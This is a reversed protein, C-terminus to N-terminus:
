VGQNHPEVPRADFDFLVVSVHLIPSLTLNMKMIDCDWFLVDQRAPFLFEFVLELSEVPLPRSASRKGIGESHVCEVFRKVVRLLGFLEVLRNAVELADLPLKCVHQRLDFGSSQKDVLRCCHGVITTSNRVSKLSRERFQMRGLPGFMDHALGELDVSRIAIM